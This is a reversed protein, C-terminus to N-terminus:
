LEVHFRSRDIKRNLSIEKRSVSCFYASVRYRFDRYYYLVTHLYLTPEVGCVFQNLVLKLEISAHLVQFARFIQTEILKRYLQIWARLLHILPNEIQLCYSIYRMNLEYACKNLISACVLEILSRM